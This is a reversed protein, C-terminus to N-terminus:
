WLWWWVGALVADGCTVALMWPLREPWPSGHGLADMEGAIRRARRDKHSEWVGLCFPCAESRLSWLGCTSCPSLPRGEINYPPGFVDPSSM